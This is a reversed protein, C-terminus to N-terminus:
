VIWADYNGKNATLDFDSSNFIKNIENSFLDCIKFEINKDVLNIQANERALNIADNSIDVSIIKANPLLKAIAISIVGSGTGIDLVVPVRNITDRRCRNIAEEVLIETEPRPILVNENIRVEFDMFFAKGIIYQIPKRTKIREELILKIKGPDKIEKELFSIEANAESEELGIAILKNILDMIETSIGWRPTEVNNNQPEELIM